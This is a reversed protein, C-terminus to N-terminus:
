FSQSGSLGSIEGNISITHTKGNITYPFVSDNVNWDVSNDAVWDADVTGKPDDGLITVTDNGGGGAYFIVLMELSLKM